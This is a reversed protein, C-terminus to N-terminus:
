LSIDARQLEAGFFISARRLKLKILLAPKEGVSCLLWIKSWLLWIKLWLLGIESWLLGIESWKDGLYSWKLVKKVM